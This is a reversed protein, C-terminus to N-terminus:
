RGPAHDRVPLAGHDRGYCVTIQVMALFPANLMLFLFAISMLNLILFLASYVANESILM